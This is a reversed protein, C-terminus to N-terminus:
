VPRGAKDAARAATLEALLDSGTWRRADAADAVERERVLAVLRANAPATRGHRAAIAVVEGQLADIETARGRELDEWMSSRAHADIGLAGAAIRRFLRDPLRMLAPTLAPPVPGLRAPRVGAARLAALAEQQCLALCRRYARRGLQDRLPLGSLANVANNLNLLLKAHQVERMDRRAEVALGGARLLELLGAGEPTDDIMLSGTSGQHFAGPATQLVNYPVMGALVTHGPLAARLIGPNHLGNQFSVVVAGPRLHEALERGATPTAASKVTVLVFDADAAADPTTAVVLRDPPLHRTPRGAATLTLGGALTERLAPRGILTVEAHPALHGGLHCGISGAGLVAIKLRRRPTPSPM